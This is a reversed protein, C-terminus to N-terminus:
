FQIPTAAVAIASAFLPFAVSQRFGSAMGSRQVSIYGVFGPVQDGVDVKSLHFGIVPTSSGTGDRSEYM